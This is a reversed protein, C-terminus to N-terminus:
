AAHVPHGFDNMYETNTTTREGADKFWGAIAPLLHGEDTETVNGCPHVDQNEKTRSGTRVTPRTPDLKNVFDQFPGEEWQDDNRSENSLVWMIVAPHNWLRAMWGASDTLVNRHWIQYEEPTFKYDQYNYLVPFEALIMTGYEDCIDAVRRPPPRTHTRFSNMSMERAETVLYDLEHGTITDGWDWEFVLNSGRLWLNKGNLKYNRDKVAIERMGFRFALEDLTQGANTLKV